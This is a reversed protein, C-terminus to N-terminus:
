ETVLGVDNGKPPNLQATVAFAGRELIKELHSGSKM